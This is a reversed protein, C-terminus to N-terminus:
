FADYYATHVSDSVGLMSHMDFITILDLLAEEVLKHIYSQRSIHKIRYM